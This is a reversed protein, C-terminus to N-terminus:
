PSVGSRLRTGILRGPSPGVCRAGDSGDGRSYPGLASEPKTVAHARIRTSRWSILSREIERPLALAFTPRRGTFHWASPGAGFSVVAAVPASNGLTERMLAGFTTADTLQLPQRGLSRARIAMERIKSLLWFYGDVRRSVAEIELARMRQAIDDGAARKGRPLPLSSWIM